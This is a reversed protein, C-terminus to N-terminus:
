LKTEKLRLAKSRTWSPNRNHPKLDSLRIRYTAAGTQTWERCSGCTLLRVFTAKFAKNFVTYIIPNLMSSSYGLWLFCKFMTEHFQCDSCLGMALNVTFFSAWCLVFLFFMTGLVKVAKQETKVSSLTSSPHPQNKSSSQPRPQLLGAIRIATTQTRVLSPFKSLPGASTPSVCSCHVASPSCSCSATTVPVAGPTTSDPDNNTGHREPVSIIVFPRAPDSHIWSHRYRTGENDRILLEEADQGVGPCDCLDNDQIVDREEEAIFSVGNPIRRESDYKVAKAEQRGDIGQMKEGKGFHPRALDSRRSTRVLCSSTMKNEDVSLFLRRFGVQIASHGNGTRNPVSGTEFEGSGTASSCSQISNQGSGTAYQSIGAGNKVSETLFRSSGIGSERSGSLSMGSGSGSQRSGVEEPSGSDGFITMGGSSTASRTTNVEVPEPQQQSKRGRKRSLSRRMGERARRELQRARESLMRITLSYTVLMVLLPLFFAALSGYVLFQTNYIACQLDRGLIEEPRYLGLFILPSAIALSLLWVTIIKVAVVLRSRNRAKLPDKIGMYRDM